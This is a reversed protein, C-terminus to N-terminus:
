LTTLQLASMHLCEPIRKRITTSSPPRVIHNISVPKKLPRNTTIDQLSVQPKVQTSKGPPKGTAQLTYWSILRRRSRRKNASIRLYSHEQPSHQKTQFVIIYRINHFLITSKRSDLCYLLM